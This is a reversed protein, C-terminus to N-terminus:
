YTRSLFNPSASMETLLKYYYNKREGLGGFFVELVVYVVYSPFSIHTSFIEVRQQSYMKDRSRISNFSFSINVRVQKYYDKLLM